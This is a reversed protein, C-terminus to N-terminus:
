NGGNIHNHEIKSFVCGLHGVILECNYIVNDRVVHSGIFRKDWDRHLARFISERERQTGEKIKLRNWENDGSTVDKGLSVGVCM